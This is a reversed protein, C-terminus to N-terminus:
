VVSKRDRPFVYGCQEAYNLLIDSANPLGHLLLISLYHCEACFNTEKLEMLLVKTEYLKRGKRIEFGTGILELLLPGFISQFHKSTWMIMQNSLEGMHFLKTHKDIGFTKGPEVLHEYSPEMYMNICENPECGKFYLIHFSIFGLVIENGCNLHLIINSDTFCKKQHEKGLKLFGIPHIHSMYAAKGVDNSFIMIPSNHERKRNQRHLITVIIIVRRIKKSNMIVMKHIGPLQAFYYGTETYPGYHEGRGTKTFPYVVKVFNQIGNQIKLYLQSKNNRLVLSAHEFVPKIEIPVLKPNYKVDIDDLELTEFYRNMENKFESSTLGFLLEHDITASTMKDKM